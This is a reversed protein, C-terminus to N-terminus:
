LTVLMREDKKAEGVLPLGHEKYKKLIFNTSISLVADLPSLKEAVFNAIERMSKGELIVTLDHSGSVLYVDAVEDFKYIREAIRDFGQGRQPAVKVEIIAGVKEENEVKEWNILTPYGCIVKEEELEKIIAKVEEESIGLMKGLDEASLKSNKNIAKLIKERM